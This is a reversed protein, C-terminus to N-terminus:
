AVQAHQCSMIHDAKAAETVLTSLDPIDTDWEILTPVSGFRETAFRYLDWVADCVPASHTDVRFERQGHAVVSHGALHIEMVARRPVRLLYAAADFGHNMASVYINNVDILLGCGTEAALAAVFESEQMESSRFQLYSSVNEVLIQRGLENQLEAVRACVHRLAEETYPLPLLDNLHVGAFSSWSLHESVYDPETLHILTRLAAVHGRDIADVSGLSMGVGHLSLAYQTRAALLAPLAPNHAGFYNESHVELWGVDPRQAMIDRHHLARLGIGARAPIPRRGSTRQPIPRVLVRIVESKAGSQRWGSARLHGQAIQGM